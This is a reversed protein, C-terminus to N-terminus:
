LVAYICVYIYLGYFKDPFWSKTEPIIIDTITIKVCGERLSEGHLKQGEVLNGMAVVGGSSNKLLASSKCAHGSLSGHETVGSQRISPSYSNDTSNLSSHAESNTNTDTSEVM